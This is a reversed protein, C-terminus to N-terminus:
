LYTAIHGLSYRVKPKSRLVMIIKEILYVLAGAIWLKWFLDSGSTFASLSLDPVHFAGHTAALVFFLVFFLSRCQLTVRLDPVRSLLSTSMLKLLLILLMAHGSWGVGTSFNLVAFGKIGLQHQSSLQGYFIWQSAGHVFVIMTMTWAVMKHVMISDEPRVIPGLTHRLVWYFSHCIPFILIALNYLFVSSTAKGICRPISISLSEEVGEDSQHGIFALTLMM